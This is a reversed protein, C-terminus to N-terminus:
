ASIQNWGSVMVDGHAVYASNQTPLVKADTTTSDTDDQDSSADDSLTETEECDDKSSVSVGSSSTLSDVTVYGTDGVLRPQVVCGLESLLKNNPSSSGVDSSTKNTRSPSSENPFKGDTQRSNSRPPPSDGPDSSGQDEHGNLCSMQKGTEYNSPLLSDCNLGRAPPWERGATSEDATRRLADTSNSSVMPFGNVVQTPFDEVSNASGPAPGVLPNESSNNQSWDLSLVLPESESSHSDENESHDHYADNSSSGESEKPRENVTSYDAIESDSCNLNASSAIAQMFQESVYDDPQAMAQPRTLGNATLPSVPPKNKFLDIVTDTSVQSGASSDYEPEALDQCDLKSYPTIESPVDYHTPSSTPSIPEGSCGRGESPPSSHKSTPRGFLGGHAYEGSGTTGPSPRANPLSYSPPPHPPPSPTKFGGVAGGLIRPDNGAYGVRNYSGISSSESVNSCSPDGKAEVPSELVADLNSGGSLQRDRHSTRLSFSSM